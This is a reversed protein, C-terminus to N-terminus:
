QFHQMTFEEDSDGHNRGLSMNFKLRKRPNQQHENDNMENMGSIGDIENIENFNLADEKSQLITEIDYHKRKKINRKKREGNKLM